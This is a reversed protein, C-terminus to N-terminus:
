SPRSCSVSLGGARSAAAITERMLIMAREVDGLPAQRLVAADLQRHAALLDIEANGGDRRQVAFGQHQAHEVAVRDREIERLEAQRRRHDRLQGCASSRGFPMTSTVPGVPLPLVM